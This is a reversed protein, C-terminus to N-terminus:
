FLLSCPELDLLHAKLCLMTMENEWKWQSCTYNSAYKLLVFYLIAIYM